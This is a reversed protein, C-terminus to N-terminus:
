WFSKENVEHSYFVIVRTVISDWHNTEYLPNEYRSLAADM